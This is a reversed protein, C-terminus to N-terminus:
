VEDGGVVEAIHYRPRRIVEIFIKRLYEAIIGLSMLLVGGLIWANCPVSSIGLCLCIIGLLPIIKFPKESSMMIGDVALRILKRASYKTEGAVRKQRVYRVLTSDFGLRPIIGRLFLNSEQYAQLAHLAKNGLLRCESHGPITETGLWSMMAYFLAATNRKLWSDSSRDSRVGYVIEYGIKFQEIFDPLADVDDQLDADMSIICDCKGCAYMMGALLAPQQGFNRSLRIGCFMSDTKCKEQIMMWTRDKSGDDVLIIRSESSVTQLTIMEQLKLALREMTRRIIDQENYCPIILWLKPKM